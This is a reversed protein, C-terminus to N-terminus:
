KNGNKVWPFMINVRKSYEDWGERKKMKEELLPISIFRLVLTITIPSVITWVPAGNIFAFIFIGFWMVSEGFYNPHRTISWTGTKLLGKKKKMFEKLEYDGIVQFLYGVFFVFIGALSWLNLELSTTNVYNVALGIILMFSGQLFYVQVLARPIVYKGWARRWNKYRFDEPEGFNRVVIHYFL